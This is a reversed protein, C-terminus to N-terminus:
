AIREERLTSGVIEIGAGLIIADVRHEVGEASRLGQETV